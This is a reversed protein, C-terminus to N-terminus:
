HRSSNRVRLDSFYAKTETFDTIATEVARSSAQQSKVGTSGGDAIAALIRNHFAALGFHDAIPDGERQNKKKL